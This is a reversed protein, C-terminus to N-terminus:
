KAKEERVWDFEYLTELYTDRLVKIADLTDDDLEATSFYDNQAVQALVFVDLRPNHRCVFTGTHYKKYDDLRVAVAGSDTMNDCSGDEEIYKQPIKFELVVLERQPEQSAAATIQASEFAMRIAADGDDDWEETVKKADWLYLYDDDSVLWTCGIKAGGNLINEAHERTTGHYYKKTM